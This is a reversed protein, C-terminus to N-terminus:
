NVESYSSKTILGENLLDNLFELCDKRALDPEVDFENSINKIIEQVQTKGDLNNWIFTAVPNLTHFNSKKLNVVIAEGDIIRFAVNKENIIFRENM